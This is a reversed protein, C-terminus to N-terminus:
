IKEDIVLELQHMHEFDAEHKAEEGHRTELQINQERAFKRYAEFREEESAFHQPM